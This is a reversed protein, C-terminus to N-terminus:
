HGCGVLTMGSKVTTLLPRQAGCDNPAQLGGWPGKGTVLWHALQVFVPSGSGTGQALVRDGPGRHHTPAQSATWGAGLSLFTAM